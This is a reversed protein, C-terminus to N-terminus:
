IEVGLEGYVARIKQATADWTHRRAHAIGRQRRAERASGEELLLAALAEAYRAPDDSSLVM